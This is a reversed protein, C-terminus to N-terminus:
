ILDFQHGGEKAKWTRLETPAAERPFRVDLWSLNNKKEVLKAEVAFTFRGVTPAQRASVVGISQGKPLAVGIRQLPKSYDFFVKESTM